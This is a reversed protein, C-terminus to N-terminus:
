QISEHLVWTVLHAVTLSIVHDTLYYANSLTTVTSAHSTGFTVLVRHQLMANNLGLIETHPLGTMVDQRSM